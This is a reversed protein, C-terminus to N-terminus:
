FGIKKLNSFNLIYLLDIQYRIRYEWSRFGEILSEFVHIVAVFQVNAHWNLNAAQKRCSKWCAFRTKSFHKLLRKSIQYIWFNRCMRVLKQISWILLLDGFGKEFVRSVVCIILCFMSKWFFAFLYTAGHQLIYFLRSFEFRCDM